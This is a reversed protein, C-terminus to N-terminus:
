RAFQSTIPRHHKIANGFKMQTMEYRCFIHAFMVKKTALLKLFFHDLTIEKHGRIHAMNAAENLASQCLPNLQQLLFAQNHHQM